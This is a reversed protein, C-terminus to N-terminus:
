RNSSKQGQMYNKTAINGCTGPCMGYNKYWHLLGSCVQNGQNPVSGFKKRITMGDACLSAMWWGIGDSRNNTRLFLNMWAPKHYNKKVWRELQLLIAMWVELATGQDKMWWSLKQISLTWQVRASPAPCWLIHIKDETEVQCRPCQATSWQGRQVMNIGHAFHRTIHKTVWRRRGLMSKSLAWEMAEFDLEMHLQPVQPMKTQGTNSLQWDMWPWEYKGNTFNPLKWM